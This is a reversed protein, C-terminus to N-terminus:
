LNTIHIKRERPGDLEVLVIRQWTGLVLRGKQVPVNINSGIIASLSHWPSQSPDHAHRWQIGKPRIAGLFDLLDQDLEPEVEATTVGCTTHMAYVIVAKDSSKVVKQIEDTIDIVQRDHKTKVTLEVGLHGKIL